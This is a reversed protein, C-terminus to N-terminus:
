RFSHIKNVNELFRKRDERNETELEIQKIKTEDIGKLRKFERQRENETQCEEFHHAGTKFIINSKLIGEKM